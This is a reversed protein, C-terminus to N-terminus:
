AAGTDVALTLSTPGGAVPTVDLTGTLTGDTVSLTGGTATAGDVWTVQVHQSDGPNAPDEGLTAQGDPSFSFSFPGPDVAPRGVADPGVVVHATFGVDSVNAMPNPSRDDNVLISLSTPMALTRLLEKVTATLAALGSAVTPDVPAPTGAVQELLAYILVLADHQQKQTDRLTNHLEHIRETLWAQYASSFIGGFVGGPPAVWAPPEVWAPLTPPLTTITM